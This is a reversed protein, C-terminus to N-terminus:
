QLSSGIIEPHGNLFDQDSMPKKGELQIQKLILIGNGTQVMLEKNETFVESPKKIKGEKTDAGLVKLQKNNFFTYSTPWQHFARITREIEEASKDWDIKGDQKKIIKCFSAKSHDQTKVKIKGDVWDPLTNILLKAGLDALEDSLQKYTQSNTIQLKTSALIPGHDMEEDMLMITVGSIKDGNLIAAHVPSAGRYKPLLSPHINLAGYKPIELIEKPVIQGYACLIILDPNLEQIKKIWESDRIKQPQLVPLRNEEAWKKVPSPLPEQKRGVPKDPATIITIIELKDKLEPYTRKFITEAFESTGMLITKIRKVGNSIKQEQKM